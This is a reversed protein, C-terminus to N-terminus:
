PEIGLLWLPVAPTSRGQRYLNYIEGEYNAPGSSMEKLMKNTPMIEIGVDIQNAVYFAMHKVFLDYAVFPYKGFQVEIAVRHNMFDTQNSRPYLTQHSKKTVIGQQDKPLFMIKRALKEDPTAYYRTFHQDWGYSNFQKKFAKNLDAPNYLHMGKRSKEKSIKTKAKEANVTSIVEKVMKIVDPNHVQLHELGNLHSHQYRIKMKIYGKEMGNKLFVLYKIM